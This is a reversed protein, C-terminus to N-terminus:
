LYSPQFIYPSRATARSHHQPFVHSRPSLVRRACDFSKSRLEEYSFSPTRVPWAHSSQSSSSAPTSSPYIPPPAGRPTAYSPVSQPTPPLSRWQWNNDPSVVFARRMNGDSRLSLLLPYPPQSRCEAFPEYAINPSYSSPRGPINTNLSPSPHLTPSIKGISGRNAYTNEPNQDNLRRNRLSVPCKESHRPRQAM